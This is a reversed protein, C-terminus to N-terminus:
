CGLLSPDPGHFLVSFFGRLFGLSFPVATGYQDNQPNNIKKAEIHAACMSYFGDIMLYQKTM